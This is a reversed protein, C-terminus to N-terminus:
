DRFNTFQLPVALDSEKFFAIAKPIGLHDLVLVVYGADALYAAMSYSSDDDGVALDFYGASCGGGPLCCWVIPESPNTPSIVRGRVVHHGPVPVAASVDVAVATRLRGM